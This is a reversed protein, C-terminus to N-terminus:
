HIEFLEGSSINDAKSKISKTFLECLRDREKKRRDKGACLQYRLHFLFLFPNDIGGGIRIEHEDIPLEIHQHARPHCILSDVVESLEDDLNDQAFQEIVPNRQNYLTLFDQVPFVFYRDDVNHSWMLGNSGAPTYLFTGNYRSASVISYDFSIGIGPHDIIGSLVGGKRNPHSSYIGIEWFDKLSRHFTRVWTAQDTSSSPSFALRQIEQWLYARVIQKPLTM